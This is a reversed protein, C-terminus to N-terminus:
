KFRLMRKELFAWSLYGFSTALMIALTVHLALGARPVFHAVLQQSPWGWLYIGYSPDGFRELWRMVPTLYALSFVVGALALAFTVSYIALHHTLVALLVLAVALELRIKISSRHIYVLVGLLFFGGIRFWDPHLPFFEPHLLGAFFVAILVLTGIRASAFLGLAGMVGLLVYMRVEAPLTWQSGNITSTKLGEAFVGPLTWAMDSAMKLNTTIYSWTDAQRLYDLKPLTTLMLGYVLALVTVNLFFAPFVRLFRAKAFKYLSKQRIYSGTVLFGSILFFVDVAIDGSYHGWGLRVFLDVNEVAPAIHPAHGYIVLTAAIIRLILFNDARRALAAEVSVGEMISKLWSVFREVPKAKISEHFGRHM